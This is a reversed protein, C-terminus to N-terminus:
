TGTIVILAVIYFQFLRMKERLKENKEILAVIYFQFSGLTPMM